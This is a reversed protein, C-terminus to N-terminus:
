GFWASKGASALQRVANLHGVVAAGAPLQDGVLGLYWCRVFHAGVSRLLIRAPTEQAHGKGTHRASLGRCQGFHLDHATQRRWLPPANLHFPCGAGFYVVITKSGDDRRLLPALAV